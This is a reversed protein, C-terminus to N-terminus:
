FEEGSTFRTRFPIWTLPFTGTEGNRNKGWILKADHPKLSRAEPTGGEKLPKILIFMVVDADAEIDGSERLDSLRPEDREDASRNLQCLCLLPVKLERALQKLQRTMEGIQEHRKIGRAEAPTLRQLYDVVLLSLGRRALRRARRRIQPVTTGPRDDVYLPLDALPQAVGLLARRDDDSIQATRIKRSSVQAEGAMLRVALEEAGMELSVYLVCHRHSAVYHSIQLALSTKGQGPRAALICLEGPFLGGIQKDVDWLGTFLGCGQRREAIADIQAMAAQVAQAIHVPEGEHAGTGIATLDREAADLISEPDEVQSYAERLIEYASHILRRYASKRAVIKAYYAAHAAVAVSQLVEALYEAGGAAEYDGAQRLADALLMTDIRQGAADMALMRSFLKRNADAYFDDPGIHETVDMLRNSDLLISGLTAKEAGLDQPPLRDLIESTHPEHSNRM